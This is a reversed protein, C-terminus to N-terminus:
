QIEEKKNIRKILFKVHRKDRAQPSLELYKTYNKLAEDKLM